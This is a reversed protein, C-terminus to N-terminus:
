MARASLDDILTVMTTRDIRLMDGLAKQTMPELEIVLTL